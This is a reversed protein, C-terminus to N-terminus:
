LKLLYLSIYQFRVHCSQSPWRTHSKHLGRHCKTSCDDDFEQYCKWIWCDDVGDLIWILFKNRDPSWNKGETLLYVKISICTDWLFAMSDVSVPHFKVSISKEGRQSWPTSTKHVMQFSNGIVVVDPSDDARSPPGKDSRYEVEFRM